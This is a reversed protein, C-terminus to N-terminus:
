YRVYLLRMYVLNTRSFGKGYRLTLDKALTLILKKGYGARIEGKQEYEVIYFGIYWYVKLLEVSIAQHAARQAATYVQGIQTMLLDYDQPPNLPVKNMSKDGNFFDSM